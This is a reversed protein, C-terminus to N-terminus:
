LWAQTGIILYDTNAWTHPVTSQWSDGSANSLIQFSTTATGLSVGTRFAAGADLGVVSAPVWGSVAAAGALGIDWAGVGYTTTSGMIIAIRITLLKGAASFIGALTGNGIAPPTLSTTWVPTFNFYAPFDPPSSYSYYTDTITAAAMAYDNNTILTITTNPSSYSASFVVGYEYAGGDKYRVKTGKAYIATVDSAITFTHNGTRTWTRADSTWGPGVLGGSAEITGNAIVTGNLYISVGSTNDYNIHTETQNVALRNLPTGGAQLIIWGSPAYNVVDFGGGSYLVTDHNSSGVWLEGADNSGIFAADAGLSDLFTIRTDVGPEGSSIIIGRSDLKVTGAGAYISGDNLSIGAQAVDNAVGVLFFNVGNYTFGTNSPGMGFRGGTFGNGPQNANGSRFEEAEVLGLSASEAYFDKIHPTHGSVDRIMARVKDLGAFFVILQREARKDLGLAKALLQAVQMGTGM